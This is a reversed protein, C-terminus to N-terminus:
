LEGCLYRKTWSYKKWEIEQPYVINERQPLNDLSLLNPAKSYHSPIIPESCNGYIMPEYHYLRLVQSVTPTEFPHGSAIICGPSLKLYDMSNLIDTKYMRGLVSLSSTITYIYSCGYENGIINELVELSKSAPSYQLDRLRRDMNIPSIHVTAYHNLPGDYSSVVINSSTTAVLAISFYDSECSEILVTEATEIDSLYVANAPHNLFSDGSTLLFSRLFPHRNLTRGTAVVYNDSVAIDDFSGDSGLGIAKFTWSSFPYASVADVLLSEGDADHGVMVLHYDDGDKFIELKNLCALKLNPITILCECGNVNPTPISSISFYGIMASNQSYKSTSDKNYTCVNEGCYFVTKGMEGEPVEIIEFDRIAYTPDHYIGNITLNYNIVRAFISSNCYNSYVLWDNSGIERVLSYHDKITWPELIFEQASADTIGFGLYTLVEALFVSLIKLNKRM